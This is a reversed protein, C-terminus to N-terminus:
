VGKDKYTKIFQRFKKLLDLTVPGPKGNGINRGDCATVPILEAATGTLFLEDATYLDFRALTEERLEYKAKRALSIVCNRTCGELIVASPPPTKITGNKVIFINDGTAEAVEGRHNLMVAEEYGNNVAETKAMINSLYNLSKVRPNLCEPHSRQVASTIIKMGKRYLEEPYLTISAAICILSARDACNRPNLGLDGIGRTAILRIYSDKLNNRKLCEYLVARTERKPLPLNILLCNAGDYFRDLHERCLFVQGNYARIGEFLGDGYLFGHDFVSIKAQSKAYFDGDIYIM